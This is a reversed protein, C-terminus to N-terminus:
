PRWAAGTRAAAIGVNFALALGPPLVTGGRDLRASDRRATAQDLNPVALVVTSLLVWGALGSVAVSRVM